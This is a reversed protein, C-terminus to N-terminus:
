VLRMLRYFLNTSHMFMFALMRTRLKDDKQLREIHSDANVMKCLKKYNEFRYVKAMSHLCGLVWRDLILSKEFGWDEEVKSLRASLQRFSDYGTLVNELPSSTMISDDHIVYNYLRNTIECASSSESILQWVFVQDESFRCNEDFSLRESIFSSRKLMISTVLIVTTREYFRHALEINTYKKYEIDRDEFDEAHKARTIQFGCFVFDCTQSRILGAYYELMRPHICDDADICIIWEGSAYKIGTNRAAALGQNIAEGNADTHSAVIYRRNTSELVEQAIVISRDKTGDDIIVIEINNYTQNCISLICKRIYKECEYVPVIVSILSVGKARNPGYEVHM